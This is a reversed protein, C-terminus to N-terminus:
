KKARRLVEEALSKLEKARAIDERWHHLLNAQHQPTFTDWGPAKSTPNAIYGEHKAINKEFTRISTQIQKPSWSLFQKLQGAHRGGSSAVDYIKRSSRLGEAAVHSLRYTKIATSAGGPVVPVATAAGDVVLGVADVAAGVYNGIALNKALSAGGIALNAVDWVTEVARGDPDRFKYPNGDAYWYRNFMRGNNSNAMVPDVSLFRGISQDYYRQQMYTLGTVGDMVHGTYGIGSFNPKGIIAGYPEYDNREIVQGAENSVAVPSGLADTHQYKVTLSVGWINDRIAILSGGLYLHETAVAQPGRYNEQYVVQGSQSYQSLISNTAPESAMIRRGLGDYRYYEKSTVGRLRNGYDFDYAQGNKNQLNGQPDYGLGIVTAGATNRINTLRHTSADYVYDAYDKVGALKWSTMNDLADYTFRHTNDTGGFVASATSTLRDLGDYGMWRHRPTPTGTVHDYIREVNGNPDYAYDYDMANGTATVRVPLQRANQDMTHVIGNGYTFQKLAGNPYYQANSAYSKNSNDRVQTAQGLPNPAYDVVLGTPYSQWRLHGYADYAYGLGWTYWGPQSLSEGTLLRRRNYEYATVVPTVGNGDNYVTVSAPLNDPKYTWVQNGRGDPFALNTLRNRADYARHAVRGSGGAATQSCDNLGTYMAGTLGTASWSLNGAADYDMVTAGSEPEITKCLQGYIDYVYQRSQQLTGATNRQKLQQPWGFQPHRAIEIVKSEPQESLIPLDYGPQDWAMFSTTTQYGRPNTIRTKLGALYETTTALVGLESDQEVRTVRDLADYFTRVGSAGPIMDSSPYSQFSVRGSTDYGTKLARLTPGVNAADYEHKLVPRWLADMYAITVRNGTEEYLRWQGSAVGPPKWDADTLARFNMLTNHYSEGSGSPHVISALRGMADYGYGTAYGNEDTVSTIWGNDNVTASETAGAPAEPTGPHRILQPIGRKWNSFSTVNGRGDAATALTGDINYTLTQQLKGFTKTWIPQALTNYGVESVVAGTEVNTTRKPRSLVWQIFDDHYETLETRVSGLTSSRRVKTPRALSDFCYVSGSCLPVESKYTVGGQSILTSILPSQKGQLPDPTFSWGIQKAFAQGNVTIEDFHSYVVDKVVSGAADVHQESLLRGENKGYIVGFRRRMKEGSPLIVEVWRGVSDSCAADPCPDQNCRVGVYNGTLGDFQDCYPFEERQYEYLTVLPTIGVGNVTRKKLSYVGLYNPEMIHAVGSVNVLMSAANAQDLTMGWIGSVSAGWSGGNAIMNLGSFIRVQHDLFDTVCRYPVYSRYFHQGAFDFNAVAGGPHTVSFTFEGGDSYPSDQDLCFSEPSFFSIEVGDGLHDPRASFSGFPSYIWRSGDPNQVAVLHGNQLTYIWDRGNATATVTGAAQNSQITIQRGDNAVIATLVGNAYQYDVYNGFRDEVRTALLFVRKRAMSYGPVTKMAKRLTPAAREVAYDFYYRTGDALKLVFGEGPYSNKLAPLCSLRAMSELIWPYSAGDAPDVYTNADVLMQGDYIGPVHVNYGHFVDSYSFIAGEVTPSTAISCRKYRDPSNYAAVSWGYYESFTGEIYPVDIDWNGLGGLEESLYRQEIPLRRGFRVPLASNGPIDIDVNVFVTKGTADSTQNGFMGDGLAAVETAAKIKKQYEDALSVAQGSAMSPLVLALLFLCRSIASRM